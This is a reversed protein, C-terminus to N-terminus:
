PNTPVLPQINDFSNISTYNTLSTRSGRIEFPTTARLTTSYVTANATTSVIQPSTNDSANDATGGGTVTVSGSPLDAGNNDVGPGHVVTVPNAVTALDGKGEFTIAIPFGKMEATFAGEASSRVTITQTSNADNADAGATGNGEGNPLLAIGLLAGAIRQNAADAICNAVGYSMIGEHFVAFRGNSESSDSIGFQVLGMLNKGTIVGSYTGAATAGPTYGNDFPGGTLAFASTTNLLFSALVLPALAKLTRQKV